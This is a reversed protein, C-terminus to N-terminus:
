IRLLFFLSAFLYSFCNIVTVRRGGGGKMSKAVLSSKRNDALAKAIFCEQAQGLMLPPLVALAPAAMDGNGSPALEALKIFAGAAARFATLAAKLCTDECGQGAMWQTRGLEAQLTGYNFLVNAREFTLTNGLDPAGTFTNSWSFNVMLPVAFRPELKELQTYYNRLNERGATDRTVHVCAGRLQGM